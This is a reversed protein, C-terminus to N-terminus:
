GHKGRTKLFLPIALLQIAVSFTVLVLTLGQDYLWGLFTGGAFLSIGLVFHYSGYAGARKEKPVMEAIPVRLISEAAGMGVGWLAMGLVALPQSGLFVLPAFFATSSFVGILVPLGLRDYLRGFVLAGIGDVGMAVAYFVPIAADPAIEVTKFHFAILPFEAFGLGILAIAGMYWWFNGRFGKARVEPTKDELEKPRPFLFRAGVLVAMALVASVTLMGFSFQYRAVSAEGQGRWALIGAMALPGLVSGIQDMAEHVGFGWGRGMKTTAYSLMADRSPNRIAKGVRELFIFIIAIQWQGVLALAPLSFLNIVYGILAVLWYRQTKDAIYGSLLRLSYGLLSGAGAVFGVITANSGLLKLFQGVLSRGGEYTTDAFLSVLGILIVFTVASGASLLGLRGKNSKNEGDM